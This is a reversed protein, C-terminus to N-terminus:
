PLPGEINENIFKKLNEARAAADRSLIEVSVCVAANLKETAVALVDFLAYFYDLDDDVRDIFTARGVKAKKEIGNGKRKM